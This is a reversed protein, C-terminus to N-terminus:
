YGGKLQITYASDPDKVSGLQVGIEDGEELAPELVEAVLSGVVALMAPVVVSVEVDVVVIQGSLVIEVDTRGCPVPLPLLKALEEAAGLLAVREVPPVPAALEPDEAVAFGTPGDVVPM